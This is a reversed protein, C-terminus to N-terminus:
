HYLSGVPYRPTTPKFGEILSPFFIHVLHVSCFTPQVLMYLCQVFLTCDHVLMHLRTVSITSTCECGFNPRVLVYLCTCVTYLCHVVTYLCTCVNWLYALYAQVRKYTTQVFVFTTCVPQVSGTVHKYMTQVQKYQVFLTCVHKYLTQVPPPTVYKQSKCAQVNNTCQLCVATSQAFM